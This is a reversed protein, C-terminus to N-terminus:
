NKSPTLLKRESRVMDMWSKVNTKPSWQLFYKAKANSALSEKLEGLRPDIFIYEGGMHLALDLISYNEGTGINFIEGSVKTNELDSAALNASVVDNVYTFDRRQLGDGVLTMPVGEKKQKLFLGVVPAYQGQTPQREGYVNFYRLIVTELGFLNTYMKCFEEGAVKSVSYPNLCEPIMEESNPIKNKIGYSASTSSYVVRKVSAERSCQLITCTGLSNVKAALIPNHLTPQIRSEAALHFVVDVGNFLSRISKYDCIDEKHNEAKKNWYFQDHTEASENDIVVVHFGLEILRDVIHSGIFGAGGTVLAKKIKM